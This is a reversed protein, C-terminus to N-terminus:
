GAKRPRGRRKIEEEAEKDVVLSEAHTKTHESLDAVSSGKYHCAMCQHVIEKPETSEDTVWNKELRIMKYGEPLDNGDADRIIPSFTGKFQYAEDEEMEIFGKAKILIPEGKYKEKYDHINDNHVRVKPM